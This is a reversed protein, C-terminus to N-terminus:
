VTSRRDTVDVLEAQPFAAFAAKVLPTDLIAQRAQAAAADEAEKITPAGPADAMSVRWNQGTMSRLTTSLEALTDAAIPRRGSLVLEPAAYRVVSAGHRLRAALALSGAQDLREVLAEFTPPHTAHVPEPTSVPAAAPAAAPAAVPAGNAIQRALEAPDPLTSAHIARLLAM